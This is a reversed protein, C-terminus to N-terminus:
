CVHKDIRFPWSTKPPLPPCSRDPRHWWAEGGEERNRFHCFQKRESQLQLRPHLFHSLAARRHFSASRGLPAPAFTLVRAAAQHVGTQTQKTDTQVHPTSMVKKEHSLSPKIRLFIYIYIDVFRFHRYARCYRKVIQLWRAALFFLELAVLLQMHASPPSQLLQPFLPLM